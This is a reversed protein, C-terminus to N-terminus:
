ECVALRRTESPIEDFLDRYARSFNGMHVVGYRQAITKINVDAGSRMLLNRIVNFRMYILYKKPSVGLCHSFAQELTRQSVCVNKAMDLVTVASLDASQVFEIAKDIIKVRRNTRLLFCREDFRQLSLLLCSIDVQFDKLMLSNFEPLGSVEIVDRIFMVREIIKRCIASSKVVATSLRGKLLEYLELEEFLYLDNLKREDVSVDGEEMAASYVARYDSMPGILAICGSGYSVGSLHMPLASDCVKFVSRELESVGAEIFSLNTRRYSLKIAGCDVSFLQQELKGASLKINEGIDYKCVSYGGSAKM